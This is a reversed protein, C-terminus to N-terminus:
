GQERVLMTSLAPADLIGTETMTTALWRGVAEDGVLRTPLVGARRLAGRWRDLQVQELALGLEAFTSPEIHAVIAGDSDTLAPISELGALPRSAMLRRHDLRARRIFQAATRIFERRGSLLGMRVVRVTAKAGHPEVSAAEVVLAVRVHRFRGEALARELDGVVLLSVTHPLRDSLWMRMGTGPENRLERARRRTAAMEAMFAATLQQLWGMPAGRLLQVRDIRVGDAMARRMARRYRRSARWETEGGGWDGRGMVTVMRHPHGVPLRLVRSVTDACLDLVHRADFSVWTAGSTLDDDDFLDLVAEVARAQERAPTDANQSGAASERDSSFSQARALQGADTRRKLAIHYLDTGPEAQPTPLLMIFRSQARVVRGRGRRLLVQGPLVEDFSNLQGSGEPELADFRYRAGSGTQRFREIVEYFAPPKSVPLGPADFVGLHALFRRLVDIARTQNTPDDHQGAEYTVGIRASREGPLLGVDPCMGGDLVADEHLGTVVRDVGIARALGAHAHDDRTVLFPPSPRTTSHLDIIADCGLLLPALALVRREEYCLTSPVAARIRDLAEAGWLRNMDVGGPTHRRRLSYARPNARVTLVSGARLATPLTDALHEVVTQGVIENGHMLGVVAVRPGPLGTEYLWVDAVGGPESTVSVIVRGDM